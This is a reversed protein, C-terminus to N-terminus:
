LLFSLRSESGTAKQETIANIRLKGAGLSHLSASHLLRIVLTGCCFFDREM